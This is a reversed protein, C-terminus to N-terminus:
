AKTESVQLKRKPLIHVGLIFFAVTKQKKNKKLKPFLSIMPQIELFTRGVLLCVGSACSQRQLAQCAWDTGLQWHLTPAQNHEIVDLRVLGM